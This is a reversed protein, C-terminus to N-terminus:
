DSFKVVAFYGFRVTSNTQRREPPQLFIEPYMGYGETMIKPPYISFIAFRALECLILIDNIENPRV